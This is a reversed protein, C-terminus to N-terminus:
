KESFSRFSDKKPACFAGSLRPKPTNKSRNEPPKLM